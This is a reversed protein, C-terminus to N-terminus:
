KPFGLEEALKEFQAGKNPDSVLNEGGTYYLTSLNHAALARSKKEFEENAIVKLLMEEGHKPNATLGLGYCHMVAISIEAYPSGKTAALRYNHLALEFNDESLASSATKLLDEINNNM